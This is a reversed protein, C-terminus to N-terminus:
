SVFIPLTQASFINSLHHLLIQVAPIVGQQLGQAKCWQEGHHVCSYQGQYQAGDNSGTSANVSLKSLTNIIEDENNSISLRRLLSTLIVKNQLSWGALPDELGTLREENESKIHDKLKSDCGNRSDFHESCSRQDSPPLLSTQCPGSPLRIDARHEGFNENSRVNESREGSSYSTSVKPRLESFAEAALTQGRETMSRSEAVRMRTFIPGLCKNAALRLCTRRSYQPIRLHFSHACRVAPATEWIVSSQM